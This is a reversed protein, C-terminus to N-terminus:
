YEAENWNLAIHNYNVIYYYKWVIRIVHVIHLIFKLLNSKFKKLCRSQDSIVLDIVVSYEISM